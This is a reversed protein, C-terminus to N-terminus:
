GQKWGSRLAAAADILSSLEDLRGEDLASKMQQLAAEFHALQALVEDRNASLIDRWIGSGSAAIRSFDRFGPGALDLHRQLQPGGQSMLGQMYAFALVHPLHSVAAFTEDHEAPKMQVVRCGMAEWVAQAEGVLSAPNESLPTLITCRQRYLGAEAQEIGGHEKGAIPHAPVFQAVRAGLAAQAAAVVDRKTSGVDMVLADAGLAPVLESLVAQTAGVPVAVLVLDAQEVAEAPSSCVKDIIGLEFARQTSVASRSHGCVQKVAGAERLAMAFSGGM